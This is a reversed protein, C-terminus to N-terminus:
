LGDPGLRTFRVTGGFSTVLNGNPDFVETTFTGRASRNNLLEVRARVKIGNVVAGQVAFHMFTGAFRRNGTRVWEGVGTGLFPDVNIIRGDVSVSTLNVFPPVGSGEEPTGEVMWSGALSHTGNGHGQPAATTSATTMLVALVAPLILLRICNEKMTEDERTPKGCM